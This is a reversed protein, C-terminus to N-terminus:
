VSLPTLYQGISTLIPLYQYQSIDVTTNTGIGTTV